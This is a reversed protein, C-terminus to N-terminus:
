YVVADDFSSKTSECILCMFRCNGLCFALWDRATQRFSIQLQHSEKSGHHIIGLGVLPPTGVFHPLRDRGKLLINVIALYGFTNMVLEPMFLLPVFRKDPVEGVLLSEETFLCSLIAYGELLRWVNNYIPSVM